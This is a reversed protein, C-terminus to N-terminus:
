GLLRGDCRYLGAATKKSSAIAECRECINRCEVHHCGDYHDQLLIARFKRKGEPPVYDRFGGRVPKTWLSCDWEDPEEKGCLPKKPGTFPRNPVLHYIM